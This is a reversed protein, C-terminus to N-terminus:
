RQGSCLLFSLFVTVFYFPIYTTVIVMLTFIIGLLHHKRPERTFSILFYFFWVMPVFILIIFSEFVKTGLSSFILLLYAIFAVTSDGCVQKTVKYFGVMGLFYYFALFYLYASFYPIGIKNFVLILLYFPNFEGIRRLFFEIPVGQERTPEWLPYVGRSLNDIFYHFHESYAQADGQLSLENALFGRFCFCWLAFSVTLLFPIKIFQWNFKM